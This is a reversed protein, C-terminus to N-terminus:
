DTLMDTDNDMGDRVGAAHAPDEETDDGLSDCGPDAPYDIKGDGDNDLGDGCPAPSAPGRARPARAPSAPAACSRAPSRSRARAAGATRRDQRSAQDHVRRERQTWGDVVFFYAGAALSTLHMTPPTAAPSRPAAARRTTAARDGLRLVRPEPRDPQPRPDGDGAPRAPLDQRPRHPQEVLARDPPRRQERRGHHGITMPMTLLEVGDTTVCAESSDGAALCTTDMPYDTKGDCTTTSATRASPATRAARATTPRPRQRRPRHLGPRRPLRGQRRRRRRRRGQVGAAACSMTTGGLPIRCVLGPGCDTTMTCDSGEGAFLKVTVDYAGGAASDHAGVIIYYNGAALSTTLKSVGTTTGPADDNCAVESSQMPLREVRIDIVTDATTTADDTSVEVVKPKQLHLQYAVAPAGGGGGCPSAIMSTSRRMSCATTSTPRHPAAQGGPRRRLRGPQQHLENPDAARRAGRITPTTSRATATTTRATAASPVTPATRATTPRTTRSPRSAAPIPRTTSRATTTTTAATTASRAVDPQGRQRRDRVHLGPRGPLRDAGDGDNDMGDSCQTKPQDDGNNNGGGCATVLVSVLITTLFSRM